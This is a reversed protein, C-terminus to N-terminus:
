PMGADRLRHSQRLLANGHRACFPRVWDREGNSWSAFYAPDYRVPQPCRRRQGGKGMKGILAACQVAAIQGCGDCTPCTVTVTGDDSM